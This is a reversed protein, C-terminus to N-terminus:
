RIRHLFFRVASEPALLGLSSFLGHSPLVLGCLYTNQKYVVRLNKSDFGGGGIVNYCGGGGDTITIM